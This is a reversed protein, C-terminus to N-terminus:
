FYEAPTPQNSPNSARQKGLAKMGEAHLGLNPQVGFDPAALAAIVLVFPLVAYDPVASTEWPAKGDLRLTAHEEDIIAEVLTQDNTDITEGAALKGLKQLVKTAIQAKTASM